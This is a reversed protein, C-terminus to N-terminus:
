VHPLVNKEGDMADEKNGCKLCLMITSYHMSMHGGCKPCEMYTDEGGNIIRTVRSLIITKVNIYNHIIDFRIFCCM